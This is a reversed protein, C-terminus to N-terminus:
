PAMIWPYLFVPILPKVAYIDATTHGKTQATYKHTNIDASVAHAISMEHRTSDTPPNFRNARDM